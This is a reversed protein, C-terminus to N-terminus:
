KDQKNKNKEPRWGWYAFLIVLLFRIILLLPKLDATGHPLPNSNSLGGIISIALLIAIIKSVTKMVIHDNLGTKAMGITGVHRLCPVRRVLNLSIVMVSALQLLAAWVQFM